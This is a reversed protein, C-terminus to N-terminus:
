EYRLAVMPDVRMARRSPPYAALLAIALFLLSVGAFSIGDITNLGYLVDHLLYSAGVALLMGAVLGALVPRTTELLILGLIDRKQAGIAMRIGVERTRLLVIYSVTGYIGMSALLLGLLGVTSAVAAALSSVIFPGTQRLLEELTTTTAVLDADVQAVVPDIANIVGAPDSATRLLLPRAQIQDEPSLLYVMKSDSGDFQVGRTDRAVGVVQYAPGDPILESLSHQKEDVPGLRLSNGLATQGPWLQKAASESLIVSHEPQGAQTQFGSGLLLPIDLTQFHNAQVYTFHLLSQGTQAAAKEAKEVGLAIASTRFSFSDPPQASTVAAVGPLAGLRSRLERVLALKRDVTYKSTEPFQLTLEVVHKGDYGTEMNLAHISSRILMSGSIMLVLSLAVQAALLFSQLRRSRVPLTSSRAASSHASRSSEMAPALGFLIGALLSVGFVYAFTQVDPAVDFVLTGVEVPLAGAALTTGVKLLAWSFL